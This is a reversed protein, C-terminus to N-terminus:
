AALGPRLRAYAPTEEEAPWRELRIEGCGAELCVECVLEQDAALRGLEFDGFGCEPCHFHWHGDLMAFRMDILPLRNLHAVELRALRGTSRGRLLVSSAEM